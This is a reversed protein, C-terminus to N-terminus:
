GLFEIGLVIMELFGVVEAFYVYYKQGFIRLLFFMVIFSLFLFIYWGLIFHTLIWAIFSIIGSAYHIVRDMGGERFLPTAGAFAIGSCGILGIVQFPTNELLMIWCPVFMFSLIFCFLTFLYYKGNSEKFMYSTSSISEPIGFKAVIVINYITFIALIILLLIEMM